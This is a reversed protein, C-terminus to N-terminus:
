HGQEYLPVLCFGHICTSPLTPADSVSVKFRYVLTMIALYAETGHATGGVQEQVTKGIPTPFKGAKNLGPGL